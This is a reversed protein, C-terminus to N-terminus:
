RDIERERYIYIYIYENRDIIYTHIDFPGKGPTVTEDSSHRNIMHAHLKNWERICTSINIICTYKYKKISDYIIIYVLITYMILVIYCVCM